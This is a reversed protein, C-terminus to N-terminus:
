RFYSISRFKTLRLFFESVWDRQKDEHIQQIKRRMEEVQLQIMEWFGELDENTPKAVENSKLPMEGKAKLCLNRFQKGLKDQCLLRTGGIITNIEDQYDKPIEIKLYEEIQLAAALLESVTTDLRSLFRDVESYDQIESKEPEVPKQISDPTRRNEQLKLSSESKSSSKQSRASDRSTKRSKPLSSVSSSSKMSQEFAFVTGVPVESLDRPSNENSSASQDVLPVKEVSLAGKSIGSVSSTMTLDNNNEGINISDECVCNSEPIKEPKETFDNQPMEEATEPSVVLHRENETPSENGKESTEALSLEIGSKSVTSDQRPLQKPM